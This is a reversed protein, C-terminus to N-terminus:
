EDNDGKRNYLDLVKQMLDNGHITPYALIKGSTLDLSVFNYGYEEDGGLRYEINHGKIKIDLVEFKQIQNMFFESKRIAQGERTFEYDIDMDLMRDIKGYFVPTQECDNFYIIDGVEVLPIPIGRKECEIIKNKDTDWNGCIECIYNTIM